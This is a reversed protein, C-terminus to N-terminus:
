SLLHLLIKAVTYKYFDCQWRSLTQEHTRVFLSYDGFILQAFSNTVDNLGIVPVSARHGVAPTRDESLDGHQTRSCQWRSLNQEHTRVFLSYDGFMSRAFSNTVDNLGIVPVSAHHGLDPIRDESLDGHQTRSCSVNVEWFYQYMYYGPLPPETGVHCSM